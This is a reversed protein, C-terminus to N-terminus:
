VCNLFFDLVCIMLLTPLAGRRRGGGIVATRILRVCLDYLCVCLCECVFLYLELICTVADYDFDYYKLDERLDLRSIDDRRDRSPCLSLSVISWLDPQPNTSRHLDDTAVM